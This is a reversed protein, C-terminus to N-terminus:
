FFNPICNKFIYYFSDVSNIFYDLYSCIKFMYDFYKVHIFFNM